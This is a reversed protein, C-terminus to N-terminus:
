GGKKRNIQDQKAYLMQLISKIVKGDDSLPATRYKAEFHYILHKINPAIVVMLDCGEATWSLPPRVFFAAVFPGNPYNITYFQTWAKHAIHKHIEEILGSLKLDAIFDFVAVDDNNIIVIDTVPLEINGYKTQQEM